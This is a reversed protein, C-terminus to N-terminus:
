RSLVLFHDGPGSALAPNVPHYAAVNVRGFDAVENVLALRDRIVVIAVPDFAAGASTSCKSPRM